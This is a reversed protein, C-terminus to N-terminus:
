YERCDTQASVTISGSTNINGFTNCHIQKLPPPPTWVFVPRQSIQYALNALNKHRELLSNYDTVLQNYKNVADLWM